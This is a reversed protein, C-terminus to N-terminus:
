GCRPRRDRDCAFRHDDGITLHQDPRALYIVGTRVREGSTADVVPVEAVRALIERLVSEPRVPRHLLVVVAAERRAPWTRVPTRLAAVGGASAAVVIVWPAGNSTNM